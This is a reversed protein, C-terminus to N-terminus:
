HMRGYMARFGGPRGSRYTDFDPDAGVNAPVFCYKQLLSVAGELADPGDDHINKNLIYVLQERLTDQDSHGKEFTIKGHEVLYALTNIIRAEKNTRHDVPVWSIYRGVKLAYNQIAEHLFDKLMNEEIGMPGGYDDSIRYCADLMGGPSAHRIYAHLCRYVGDKPDWGVAVIAKFDSAEAQTASPDCFSGVTLDKLIIEAATHFKFWKEPFPSDEAGCLNMMERNFNVMGMKKRKAKLRALSWHEPWLSWEQATGEDIIAQYIRSIYLPEGTEEDKMAILQSLVSKPHFLNGVMLFTYGEGMSGIVTGQLFDIGVAVIKPNRVNIDNEFDDVVVKDPRYQRNRLGRIKDQKGRALVWIGNSTIFSGKGWAPGLLKGFDHRLRPNDELEMAIALTFTTAQDNTDSLVIIFHRLEFCIDHLNDGFTFFTSKAFERPAAALVVEDKLDALDAWEQHFDGFPKTFYHPLYIEMFYLKDHRAREIRAQQKEPTDNEFPSVSEQIWSKLDEAFQDFRYESIKPRRRM